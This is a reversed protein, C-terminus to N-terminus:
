DGIKDEPTTGGEWPPIPPAQEPASDQQPQYSPPEPARPPYYGGSNAPQQPQFQPPPPYGANSAPAQPPYYGNYPAPEGWPAHQPPMNNYAVPVSNRIIFLFISQMFPFIVSLVTWSTSSIPRYCKYIKNLAIITLVFAALSVLSVLSNVANAAIFSGPLTKGSYGYRGMRNMLDMFSSIIAGTSASSFVVSIINGALLFYRFYSRSGERESIDDAISGIRYCGVIPIWALGAGSMGRNTALKYLGISRLIYLALNIAAAILAFIVIVTLFVSIGALFSPDEFFDYPFHDGYYNNM